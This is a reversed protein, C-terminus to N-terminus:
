ASFIREFLELNTKFPETPRPWHVVFDTVGIEEYRGITDRFSELSSLGSDLRVGSLVLRRLSKPDRGQKQCAEEIQRTQDGVLKAGQRGSLLGEGYDGITVWLDAFRAAVEFGRRAGAAIALPLRPKQVCGPYTRAESVAYFKGRWNVVPERLLLDTLEVFEAFRESREKASWEDQGLMTADWGHGGAGIGAIVRGRSIDDLAILDKALLLPHRFNPSAVLTGISIRETALAAATLTPISTFWTQDRFMRWTLHDYTWAHAFGLEDARRWRSVSEKWPAEPLIAVGFRM